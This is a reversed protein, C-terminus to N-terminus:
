SALRWPDQILRGSFLWLVKQQILWRTDLFAAITGSVQWQTLPPHSLLLSNKSNFAVLICPCVFMWKQWIPYCTMFALFAHEDRSNSKLLWRSTSKHLSGARVGQGMQLMLPLVSGLWGEWFPSFWLTIHLTPSLFANKWLLSLHKKEEKAARSKLLFCVCCSLCSILSIELRKYFGYQVSPSYAM